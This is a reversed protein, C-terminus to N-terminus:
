GGVRGLALDLRAFVQGLQKESIRGARETLSAKDVALILTTQAVSDRDLGTARATLTLSTPAAAWKLNSTLPVCIVTEIRSRNVQDSQVILVPRRFGAASGAPDPLEVWWVEGQLLVREGVM